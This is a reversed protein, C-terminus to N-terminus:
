PQAALEYIAKIQNKGLVMVQGLTRKGWFTAKVTMEEIQDETPHIGLEAFNTPMDISRFFRRM